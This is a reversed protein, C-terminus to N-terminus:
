PEAYRTMRAVIPRLSEDSGTWLVSMARAYRRRTVADGRRAAIEAHALLGAAFASTTGADLFYVSPDHTNMAAMMIDLVRLASATDGTALWARVTAFGIDPTPPRVWTSEAALLIARAQEPAGRAALLAARAQPYSTSTVLRVLVTTDYSQAQIAPRLLLWADFIQRQTSRRAAMEADIAIALDRISLTSDTSCGITEGLMVRSADVFLGASFLEPNPAAKAILRAAANCRGLMVAVPVLAEAMSRSDPPLQLLSDGLVRARTLLVPQDPMGFRVLLQFEIAGLRMRLLSDRALRRAARITDIAARNGLRELSLAVAEKAGPSEPFAASWGAALRAFAARREAVAREYGPPRPGGRVMVGIPYPVLVLTDGVWGPLAYFRASDPGYGAIMHTALLLLNELQQFAGREYGRYVSPLIEFAREYATMAQHASAVFRFGSPTSADPVVRKNLTRCQGLGFWAAFDRQDRRALRSYEDCAAGYSGSAIAALARALAAERADLQQSAAVARQAIASWASPNRGAWARTQAQWFHARAFEADYSLASQLASDARPLDWEMLALQAAAFAQQAPLSRSGIAGVPLPEARAGRLLLTDALRAYAAVASDLNQSITTSASYLPEDRSVDYLTAALHGTAGLPSITARVFRGAGLSASVAAADDTTAYPGSRRLADAVRFRDVVRLDRWRAFAQHLLDDHPWPIASPGRSEIPLLLLRTTDAVLPRAQRLSPVIVSSAGAVIVVGAAIMALWQRGRWRAMGPTVGRPSISPAPALAGDLAAMLDRTSRYRDVPAIAFARQLAAELAPPATPRYVRLDRPPHVFRMAIVAEDTPGIYAQMGTIMEYIVCALSFVDSRGDLEQSGAAQEPSMYAATGRVVSRSTTGTGGSGSLDIARAIGFDGLCAVGNTFLINEPKVDRHILGREHAHDLAEAITRSIEIVRSLELHKERKLLQRLTGGEMYPLAFYLQGEHEGAELVPLIHPHQLASTRKIERLFRDSARSEALEPRLIKLAVATGAQTDRALYVIASAGQGIEREIAYRGAFLGTAVSPPSRM